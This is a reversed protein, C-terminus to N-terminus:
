RNAAAAAAATGEEEVKAMARRRERKSKVTGRLEPVRPASTSTSSDQSSGEEVDAVVPSAPAAARGSTSPSASATDGLLEPALKPARCLTHTSSAHCQLPQRVRGEAAHMRVILASSMYNM